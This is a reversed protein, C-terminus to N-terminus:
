FAIKEEGGKKQSLKLCKPPVLAGTVRNLQLLLNSGHEVYYCQCAKALSILEAFPCVPHYSM